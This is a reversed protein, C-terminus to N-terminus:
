LYLQLYHKCLLKISKVWHNYLARVSQELYLVVSMKFKRGVMRIMLFVIELCKLRDHKLSTNTMMAFIFLHIFLITDIGAKRKNFVMSRLLELM